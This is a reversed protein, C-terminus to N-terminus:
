MMLDYASNGKLNIPRYNMTGKEFKKWSGDKNQIYGTALCRDCVNGKGEIYESAPRKDPFAKDCGVSCKDGGCEQCIFMDSGCKCFRPMKSM